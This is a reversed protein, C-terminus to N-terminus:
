NKDILSPLELTQRCVFFQEAPRTSMPSASISDRTSTFIVYARRKADYPAFAIQGSMVADHIALASPPKKDLGTVTSCRIQIWGGYRRDM